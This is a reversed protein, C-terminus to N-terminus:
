ADVKELADIVADIIGQSSYTAGSVVDVETSNQSIMEPIVQMQARHFFDYDDVNEKIKIETIKNEIVTVEAVIEGKYGIGVGEYVGNRKDKTDSEETSIVMEEIPQVEEKMIGGKENLKENIADFSVYLIIACLACIIIKITINKSSM